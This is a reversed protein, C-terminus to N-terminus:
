KEAVVILHEADLDYPTADLDGFCEVERFGAAHCLNMLERASYLRLRWRVREVRGDVIVRWDMDLRSFDEALSRGEILLVGDEERWDRPQFDRCVLEKGIIEILLRGGPRLSAFVNKLVRLEDDPQEFFGFSTFWCFAADFAGDERFERMDAQLWRIGEVGAAERRGEELYAATRDLASMTFGRRAMERAHRGVGCALDLVRSGPTVGLLGLIGEVEWAARRLRVRPFLVPRVAKWFADHEHWDGGDDRDLEAQDFLEMDARPRDKFDQLREQLGTTRLELKHGDPDLIYLSAGASSNEQWFRVGAARLKAELEGLEGADVTFAVHTYEDDAKEQLGAHVVLALWFDGASLYASRPSKMALAMGLRDHYFVLSRELNRVALTLHNFGQIMRMVNEKHIAAPRPGASETYVVVPVVFESDRATSQGRFSM